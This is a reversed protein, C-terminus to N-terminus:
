KVIKILKRDKDSWEYGAEKMKAFLLDQQAKTAPHIATSTEWFHELGENFKIVGDTTLAVYHKCACDITGKYLFISEDSAVLM